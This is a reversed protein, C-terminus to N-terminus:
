PSVTVESLKSPIFDLDDEMFELSHFAFRHVRRAEQMNSAKLRGDHFANRIGTEGAEGNLHKYEKYYCGNSLHRAVGRPLRYREGDKLEYTKYEEDPYWKYSFTLTGRPTELNKFVGCVEEADRAKMREILKKADATSMKKANVVARLGSSYEASKIEQKETM